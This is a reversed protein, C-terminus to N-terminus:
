VSTQFRLTAGSVRCANVLVSAAQIANAVSVMIQPKEKQLDFKPRKPQAGKKLEEKARRRREVEEAAEKQRRTELATMDQKRKLEREKREIEAERQELAIRSERERKRADADAKAQALDAYTDPGRQGPAPAWDHSYLADTDSFGGRGTTPSTTTSQPGAASAPLLTSAQIDALFSTFRSVRRVNPGVKGSHQKYLNAVQSM